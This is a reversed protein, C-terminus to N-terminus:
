KIIGQEKMIKYFRKKGYRQKWFRIRETQRDKRSAPSGKKTFCNRHKALPGGSLDPLPRRAAGNAMSGVFDELGLTMLYNSLLQSM